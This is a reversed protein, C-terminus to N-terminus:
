QSLEEPQNGFRKLRVITQITCILTYIGYFVSWAVLAFCIIVFIVSVLMIADELMYILLILPIISVIIGIALFVTILLFKWVRRWKMALACSIDSLVRAWGACFHYQYLVGMVSSASTISTAFFGIVGDELLELALANTLLLGAQLLYFINATAFHKEYHGLNRLFLIGCVVALAFNPLQVVLPSLSFSTPIEPVNTILMTLSYLMGLFALLASGAASVVIFKLLLNGMYGYAKRPLRTASEAAPSVAPMEAPADEAAPVREIIIPDSVPEAEPPWSERGVEPEKEAPIDEPVAAPEAEAPAPELAMHLANEEPEPQPCSPGETNRINEEM